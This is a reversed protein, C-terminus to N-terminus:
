PDIQPLVDNALKELGDLDDLDLWQLMVCQIGAEAWRGLQNVIQNANGVPFDEKYLGQPTIKGSTRKAVKDALETENESFICGIMLSRRVAEVARGKQVILHNLRHNLKKFTPIDIYYCNWEDAYEAVLPLTCKSGNGGILIPLNNKQLPKPLLIADNLHYYTGDFNISRAETLLKTIIHLAEEFRQFRQPVNLLDWGYNQHERVQWGAGLGLVLRGDSLNDVAAAMRATMTPHKFSVPSVLPGFTIRNTHSAVWTLSTWLELSDKDPPNANTYHDSRFLGYFGFEEVAQAIRQWNDWRLGNQGEIMIAVQMLEKEM